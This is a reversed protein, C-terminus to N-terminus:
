LQSNAPSFYHLIVLCFDTALDPNWSQWSVPKRSYRVVQFAHKIGSLTFVWTSGSSLAATAVSRLAVCRCFWGVGGIPTSSLPQLAGLMLPPPPPQMSGAAALVAPDVAHM